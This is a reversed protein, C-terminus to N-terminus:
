QLFRARRLRPRSGPSRWAPTRPRRRGRRSSGSPEGLRARGSVGALDDDLGTRDTTQPLRIRPIRPHTLARGYGFRVLDDPLSTIGRDPQKGSSLRSPFEQGLDGRESAKTRTTRLALVPEVFPRAEERSGEQWRRRSTRCSDPGGVTRSHRKIKRAATAQAELGVTNSTTNSIMLCGRARARWGSASRCPSCAASSGVRRSSRMSRLVPPTSTSPSSRGAIAPRGSSPPFDRGRTRSRGAPRTTSFSRRRSTPSCRCGPRASGGPSWRM